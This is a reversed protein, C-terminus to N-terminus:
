ISGTSPANSIEMLRLSGALWNVTSPVVMVAVQDPPLLEMAVTVESPVMLGMPRPVVVSVMLIPLM